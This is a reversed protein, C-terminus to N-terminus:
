AARAQDLIPERRASVRMASDIMQVDGEYIRHVAELVRRWVGQRRWQSFRNACVRHPGYCAPIEAWPAGTRLRWLVGNVLSREDMRGGALATKPLMPAIVAWELDTLDLHSAGGATPSLWCDIDDGIATAAGAPAPLVSRGPAKGHGLAWRHFLGLIALGAVFLGAALALRRWDGAVITLVVLIWGLAGGILAGRNNGGSAGSEDAQNSVRLAFVM